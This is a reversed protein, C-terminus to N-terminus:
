EETSELQISIKMLEQMSNSNLKVLQLLCRRIISANSEDQNTVQQQLSDCFEQNSFKYNLVLTQHLELCKNIENLISNEVNPKMKNLKIKLDMQIERWEDLCNNSNITKMLILEDDVRDKDDLQLNTRLKNLDISSYNDKGNLSGLNNTSNIANVQLHNHDGNEKQKALEAKQKIKKKKSNFSRLLKKIINSKKIKAKELHKDDNLSIQQNMILLNELNKVECTLWDTLTEPKAFLKPKCNVQNLKFAIRARIENLLETLCPISPQTHDHLLHHEHNMLNFKSLRQFEDYAHPYIANLKMWTQKLRIIPICHLAILVSKFSQWNKLKFLEGLLQAIKPLRITLVFLSSFLFDNILFSVFGSVM